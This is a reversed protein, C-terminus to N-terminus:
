AAPSGTGIGVNTGIVTALSTDVVLKFLAQIDYMGPLDIRRFVIGHNVKAPKVIVITEKGSHV